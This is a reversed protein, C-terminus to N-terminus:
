DIEKIMPLKVIFETETKNIKMEQKTYHAFRKRLNDLGIKVSEEPVMKPQINNSVTLYDDACSILIHLPKDSSIENHKVCNEVLMQIAAPVILRQRYKEQIDIKITLNKRFRQALLFSYSGVFSLEKRLEILDKDKIKLIYRYVGALEQVFNQAASTSEEILTILTSLSNFLFHPDIQQKLSVLEATLNEKQLAILKVKSHELELLQNRYNKIMYFVMSMAIANMGVSFPSIFIRLRMPGLFSGLIMVLANFCFGITLIIKATKDIDQKTKISSLIQYLILINFAIFSVRAWQLTHDFVLASIVLLLTVAALIVNIFKKKIKFFSNAFILYLIHFLLIFGFVSARRGITQDHLYASFPSMRLHFIGAFGLTLGFILIASSKKNVLFFILISLIGIILLNVAGYFDVQDNILRLKNMDLALENIDDKNGIAMEDFMFGYHLSSKEFYIYIVNTDDNIEFIYPHSRYSNAHLEKSDGPFPQYVEQNFIVRYAFRSSPTLLYKGATKESAFEVKLWNIERRNIVDNAEWGFDADRMLLFNDPKISENYAASVKVPKMLYENQKCGIVAILILFLLMIKKM